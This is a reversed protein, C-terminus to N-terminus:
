CPTSQCLSLKLYNIQMIYHLTYLRHLGFTKFDIDFRNFDMLHEQTESKRVACIYTYPCILKHDRHYIYVYLVPVM